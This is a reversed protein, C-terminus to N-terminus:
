IFTRLINSSSQFFIRLEYVIYRTWCCKIWTRLGEVLVVGWTCLNPVFTTRFNCPWRMREFSSRCRNKPVWQSALIFYFDLFFDSQAFGSGCRSSNLCRSLTEILNGLWHRYYCDIFCEALLFDEWFAM